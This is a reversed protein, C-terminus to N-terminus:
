FNFLFRKDNFKVSIIDKAEDSVYEPFTLSKNKINKYMQTLDEDYFAPQGVLLEYLIAGIGYLDASIGHGKRM